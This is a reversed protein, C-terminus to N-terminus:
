QDKKVNVTRSSLDGILYITTLLLLKLLPSLTIWSLPSPSTLTHAFYWQSLADEFEPIWTQSPITSLNPV